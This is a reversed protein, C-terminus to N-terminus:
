DPFTWHNSSCRDCFSCIVEGCYTNWLCSTTPVVTLAVYPMGGLISSDLPWSLSLNVRVTCVTYAIRSSKVLMRMLLSLKSYCQTKWIVGRLYLLKMNFKNLLSPTHIHIRGTSHHSSKLCPSLTTIFTQKTPLGLTAHQLKGIISQFETTACSKHHIIHRIAQLMKEIKPTLLQMTRGFGNDFIWGLINKEVNWVGECHDVLLKKQSIPDEGAHGTSDSTPFLEHAAHLSARSHHRAM